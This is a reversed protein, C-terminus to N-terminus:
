KNKNTKNKKNKILRTEVKKCCKKYKNGSGCNCLENNQYKTETRIPVIVQNMQKKTLGYDYNELHMPEEFPILYNSKKLAEHELKDLLSQVLGSGVIAIKNKM